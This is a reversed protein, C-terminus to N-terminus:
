SCIKLYIIMLSASLTVLNKSETCKLWIVIFHFGFDMVM